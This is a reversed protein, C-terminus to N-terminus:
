ARRSAAPTMAEHLRNEVVSWDINEFFTELYAGRNTGFDIMYAHEYVDLVLVPMVLPVLQNHLDLGYNHLKGDKWNFGTLAWGRMSKGVAHLDHLYGDWSGFDRAVLKKFETGAPKRAGGINGFYHEHLIVGNLAYSQEVHLERYPHYTPNLDALEPHSTALASQIANTKKVYGKYLGLHQELQTASIGEVSKLRDTFDVVEITDVRPVKYADSGVPKEGPKAAFAAPSLVQSINGMAVLAGSALAAQKLFQRRGLKPLTQLTDETM